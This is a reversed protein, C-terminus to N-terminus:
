DGAPIEAFAKIQSELLARVVGDQSKAQYHPEWGVLPM